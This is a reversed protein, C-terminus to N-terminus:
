HPKRAPLKALDADIDALLKDSITGPAFQQVSKLTMARAMEIQDGNSFGPMHRELVARAAPDDLLTGISTDSTTYVATTSRSGGAGEAWTSPGILLCFLLGALLVARM